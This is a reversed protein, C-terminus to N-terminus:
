SLNVGPITQMTDGYSPFLELQPLDGKTFVLCFENPFDSSVFSEIKSAIHQAFQLAKILSNDLEWLRIYRITVHEQPNLIKVNM